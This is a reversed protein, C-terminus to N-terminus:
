IRHVLFRTSLSRSRSLYLLAPAHFPIFRLLSPLFFSVVYLLVAIYCCCCGHCRCRCGGLICYVSFIPFLVACWLGLWWKSHSCLCVLLVFKNWWLYCIELFRKWRRWWIFYMSIATFRCRCCCCFLPPLALIGDASNTIFYVWIANPKVGCLQECKRMLTAWKVAVIVIIAVVIVITAATATAVARVAIPGSHTHAFSTALKREDKIYLEVWCYICLSSSFSIMTANTRAVSSNM